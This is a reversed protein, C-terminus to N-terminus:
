SVFACAAWCKAGPINTPCGAAYSGRPVNVAIAKAKTYTKM